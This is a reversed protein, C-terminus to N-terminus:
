MTRLMLPSFKSVFMGLRGLTCERARGLALGLVGVGRCGERASLVARGLGM